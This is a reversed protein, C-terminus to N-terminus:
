WSAINTNRKRSGIREEPWEVGFTKNEDAPRNYHKKGGGQKIRRRIIAGRSATWARLGRLIGRLIKKGTQTTAERWPEVKFKLIRTTDGGWENQM